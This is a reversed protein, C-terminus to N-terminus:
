LAGNAMFIDRAWQAWEPEVNIDQWNPYDMAILGGGFGRFATVMELATREIYERNGTAMVKQIDVPCYFAVRGGYKKALEASGHLEPQDFQLVDVGAEIFDEVLSKTNGCSHLFLFMGHAHLRDAIARYMPKFFTRFANPSIFTTNQMGWDDYIILGDFGLERDIDVVKLLLALLKDLLLRVHEPELVIDMLANDMRRLDRFTSFVSIPAAGLIFKDSAQAIADKLAMTRQMDVEPFEYQGAATIDDQLAGRLCEGKTKEDLRGYVNGFCDMCVQGEFGPVLAKVDPYEGWALRDDYRSKFEGSLIWRIDKPYPALFDFGIRPPRDYRIVRKIIEKSTM